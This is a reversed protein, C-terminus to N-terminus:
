LAGWVGSSFITCENLVCHMLLGAGYDLLESSSCCYIFACSLFSSPKLFCVNGHLFIIIITVPVIGNQRWFTIQKIQKTCGTV